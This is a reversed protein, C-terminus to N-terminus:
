NGQTKGDTLEGNVIAVGSAPAFRFMTDPLAPAFRWNEFRFEVETGGAQRVMLRALEGTARAVEWRTRGPRRFYATAAETRLVSGNEAYRELFTAQLTKASRYRAEMRSALEAAERSEKPPSLLLVLACLLAAM